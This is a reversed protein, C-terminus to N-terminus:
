KGYYVEGHGGRGILKELNPKTQTQKLLSSTSNEQKLEKTPQLNNQKTQPEHDGKKTKIMKETNNLASHINEFSIEKEKSKSQIIKAELESQKEEQFSYDKEENVITQFGILTTPTGAPPSFNAVYNGVKGFSRRTTNKNEKTM